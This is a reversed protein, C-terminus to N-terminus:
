CSIMALIALGVIFVSFIISKSHSYYEYKYFQRLKKVLLTGILIFSLFLVMLIVNFYISNTKSPVQEVDNQPRMTQEFESNTKLDFGMFTFQVSSGTIVFFIYIYMQINDWQEFSNKSRNGSFLYVRNLIVLWKFLILSTGINLFVVSLGNFFIISTVM